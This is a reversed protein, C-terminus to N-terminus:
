LLCQQRAKRPYCCRHGEVVKFGLFIPKLHNKAIKPQSACKSHIKASVYHLYVLVVQTRFYVSATARRMLVLESKKDMINEDRKPPLLYHLYKTVQDFMGANGPATPHDLSLFGFAGVRYGISVVIINNHDALIKGDYLNLTTTGSYFGGGYIWVMVPSRRTRYPVWVNLYLCDESVKGPPNWM